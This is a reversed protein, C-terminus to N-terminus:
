YGDMGELPQFMEFNDDILFNGRNNDKKAYIGRIHLRKRLFFHM